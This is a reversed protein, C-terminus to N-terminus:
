IKKARTNRPELNRSLSVSLKVKLDEGAVTGCLVPHDVHDVLDDDRGLAGDSLDEGGVKVEAGEHGGELLGLQGVQQGLLAVVGHEGGGVGGEGLQVGLGSLSQDTAPATGPVDDPRM